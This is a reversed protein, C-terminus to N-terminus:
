PWLPPGYVSWDFALAAGVAVAILGLGVSMAYAVNEWTWVRLRREDPVNDTVLWALTVFILLLALAAM